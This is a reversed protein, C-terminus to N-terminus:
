FDFRGSVFFGRPDAPYYFTDNRFAFVGCQALVKQGTCQPDQGHNELAQPEV